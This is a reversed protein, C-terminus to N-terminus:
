SVYFLQSLAYLLLALSGWWGLFSVIFSLTIKRQWSRPLLEAQRGEQERKILFPSVSFSLSIGNAILFAFIVVHALLLGVLDLSSYVLVGGSLAGLTGIWILPKTVKHARTAAETWYSSRRGLFGHLDIVTVAGLGIIYGAFTLLLYLFNM